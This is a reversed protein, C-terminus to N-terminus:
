YITFPAASSINIIIEIEDNTSKKLKEKIKPLIVKETDFHNADVLILGLENALQAEHYKIDGTIYIEANSDFADQIFDGGSGGCLAVRHVKRDLSGYIRLYDVELKEKVTDLFLSVNMEEINGIRGHGYSVQSCVDHNVLPSLIEVDKLGLLKALVDNVGGRAVDLNTHANYVVIDEKIINYILRGKYTETTIKNLPNFLIPHHTIIMDAEAEKAKQFSYEDLDLSVLVKKVSKEPDGIQFGTNDWSDILYPPAWNNMINIIDIAKM